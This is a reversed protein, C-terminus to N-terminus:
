IYIVSYMCRTEPFPGVILRALLLRVNSQFNGVKQLHPCVVFQSPRLPESCILDVGAAPTKHTEATDEGAGRPRCGGRRCQDGHTFQQLLLQSGSGGHTPQERSGMLRRDNRSIERDATTGAEVM